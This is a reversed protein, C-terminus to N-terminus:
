ALAQQVDALATARGEVAPRDGSDNSSCATCLAALCPACRAHVVAVTSALAHLVALKPPMGMSAAASERGSAYLFLPATAALAVFLMPWAM